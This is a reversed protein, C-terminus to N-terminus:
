EIQTRRSCFYECYLEAVVICTLCLVELSFLYWRVQKIGYNKAQEWFPFSSTAESQACAASQRLRSVTGDQM